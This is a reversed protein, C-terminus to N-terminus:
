NHYRHVARVPIESQERPFHAFTPIIMWYGNWYSRSETTTTPPAMEDAVAKLEPHGNAMAVSHGAWKLM